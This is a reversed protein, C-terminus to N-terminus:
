RPRGSAHQEVRGVVREDLLEATRRDQDHDADRELRHGLELALQLHPVVVAEELRLDRSARSALSPRSSSCRGAPLRRTRAFARLSGLEDLRVPQRVDGGAVDEALVDGLSGLEAELGLAVHVRALEDGVLDDDAITM